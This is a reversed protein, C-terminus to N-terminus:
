PKKKALSALTHAPPSSLRSGSLCIDSALPGATLFNNLLHIIDSIRFEERCIWECSSSPTQASASPLALDYYYQQRKYLVPLATRQDCLAYDSPTAFILTLIRHNPPEKRKCQHAGHGHGGCNTLQPPSLVAARATSTSAFKAPKTKGKRRAHHKCSLALLKLFHPANHLPGCQANKHVTPVVPLCVSANKHVMVNHQSPDWYAHPKEATYYSRSATDNLM